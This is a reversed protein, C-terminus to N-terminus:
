GFVGRLENLVVLSAACTGVAVFENGRLGRYIFLGILCAALRHWFLSDALPGGPMAVLRTVLGAIMAYAVCSIWRFVDGGPEIRGALVVGLARWVYTGLTCIVLLIWVDTM